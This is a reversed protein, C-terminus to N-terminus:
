GSGGGLPSPLYRKVIGMIVLPSRHFKDLSILAPFCKGNEVIRLVNSEVRKVVSKYSLGAIGQVVLSLLPENFFPNPMGKSLKTLHAVVLEGQFDM